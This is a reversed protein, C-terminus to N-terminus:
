CEPQEIYKKRSASEAGSFTFSASTWFVTIAADNNRGGGKNQGKQKFRRDHQFAASLELWGALVPVFCCRDLLIALTLFSKRQVKLFLLHSRLWSKGEPPDMTEDLFRLDDLEVDSNDWKLKRIVTKRVHQQLELSSTGEYWSVSISGRDIMKYLEPMADMEDDVEFSRVSGGFRLMRTSSKRITGLLSSSRFHKKLSSNTNRVEEQLRLRIKRRGTSMVSMGMTVTQSGNQAQRAFSGFSGHQQAQMHDFQLPPMQLQQQQHQSPPLFSLLQMQSPASKPPSAYLQPEDVRPLVVLNDPGSVQYFDLRTQMEETEEPACDSATKVGPKHDPKPSEALLANRDLDWAPDDISLSEKSEGNRDVREDDDDQLTLEAVYKSITALAREDEEVNNLAFIHASADHPSTMGDPDQQYDSLDTMVLEEQQYASAASLHEVAPEQEIGVGGNGLNNRPIQGDLISPPDPRMSSESCISKEDNMRSRSFSNSLTSTDLSMTGFLAHPKLDVGGHGSSIGEDSDDEEGCMVSNGISSVTSNQRCPNPGGPSKGMTRAYESGVDLAIKETEVEDSFNGDADAGHNESPVVTRRQSCVFENGDESPTAIDLADCGVNVGGHAFESVLDPQRNREEAGKGGMRPAGNWKVAALVDEDVVDDCSNTIRFADEDSSTPKNTGEMAACRFM